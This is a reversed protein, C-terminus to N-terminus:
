SGTFSAPNLGFHTIFQWATVLCEDLCLQWTYLVLEATFYFCVSLSLSLSSLSFFISLVCDRFPIMNALLLKWRDGKM